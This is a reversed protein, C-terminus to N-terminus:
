VNITELFIPKIKTWLYQKSCYQAQRKMESLKNNNGYLYIIQEAISDSNYNCIMGNERHKIYQTHTRIDNAIVPIGAVLYEFLKTPPNFRWYPKNAWISLGIDANHLYQKIEEGNVIEIVTVSDEVELKKSLEQCIKKQEEDAGVITLHVKQEGRNAKSVAEIMMDRGRDVHVTGIYLAQLIRLPSSTEISPSKQPSFDDRVGMYILKIKEKPCGKELLDDSHHEGIPMTVTARKASKFSLYRMVRNKFKKFCKLFGGAEQPYLHTPHENWYLFTKENGFLWTMPALKSHLLVVHTVGSNRCLKKTALCFKYFGILGSGAPIYYFLVSPVGLKESAEKENSIVMAKEKHVLIETRYRFDLYGVQGKPFWTVVAIKM